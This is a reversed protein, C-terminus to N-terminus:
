FNLGRKKLLHVVKRWKEVKIECESALLEEVKVLLEAEPSKTELCLIENDHDYSVTTCLTHLPTYRISGLTSKDALVLKSQHTRAKLQSLYLDTLVLPEEKLIQVILLNCDESLDPVLFSSKAFDLVLDLSQLLIKPTTSTICFSLIENLLSMIQPTMQIAQSEKAAENSHQSKDCIMRSPLSSLYELVKKWPFLPKCDSVSWTRIVKLVEFEDGIKM